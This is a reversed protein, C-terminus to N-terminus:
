KSGVFCVNYTILRHFVALDKTAWLNERYLLSFCHLLTWQTEEELCSNQTYKGFRVAVSSESIQINSVVKKTMEQIM